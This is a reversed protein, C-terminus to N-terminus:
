SVWWRCLHNPLSLTLVKKKKLYGTGQGCLCPRLAEVIKLSVEPKLVSQVPLPLRDQVHASAFSNWLQFTDCNWVLQEQVPLPLHDQVYAPAFLKVARQVFVSAFSSVTVLKLYRPETIVSSLELGSISERVACVVAANFLKFCIPFSLVIERLELIRSIRERTVDTNMYTQSDHIRVASSCLLTCAM